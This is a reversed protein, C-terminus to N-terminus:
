NSNNELKGERINFYESDVSKLYEMNRSFDYMEHASVGNEWKRHCSHCHYTINNIDCILDRRRSRPILHSHTLGDTIGCGTCYPRRNLSMEQYVKKLERDISSQKKSKRKIM